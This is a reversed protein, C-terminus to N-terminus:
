TERLRAPTRAQVASSISKQVKTLDDESLTRDDAQLLVRLSVAKEDAAYPAGRYQTVLHVARCLGKAGSSTAAVLEAFPLIEPCIWTFEREVAQFRSPAQFRLPQPDGLTLAIAELDIVFIGVRDAIDAHKRTAADLEGVVGVRQKGLRLDRCRSAQWGPPVVTVPATDGSFGLGTLVALAADRASYFPTEQSQAAWAGTLFQQEDPTAKLGCGQGYGKGLEYCRVVDSHRRNRAIAEALSGTLDRRLVTWEASLPNALRITRDDWGLHTVWDDSAFPYTAVEDWGLASLTTRCRQEAVRLPNAAPVAAPLRPVEGVIGDFGQMRAVEEVLDVGHHIDKRRWWPVQWGANGATFGLKTLRQAQEDAPLDSGFYRRYLGPAYAVVRDEGRLNGAHFSQVVQLDPCCERLMALARNIAAPALEHPLGKEFRSSSDTTLGLRIRTRRIRDPRFLAAELLVSTTDPAVLANAGGMIGALAVAKKGDSIVVDTSNLAHERDDLTRFREGDAAPRVRITTGELQRLDFAHMPEGLEFMVFNTVDVLLGLSRVGVAELATRLWEPSPGNTVGTVVAGCYVACADADSITASWPGATDAFTVDPTPPLPLETILAIERAWGWQGWLDPRNTIGHNDIVLVADGMGLAEALPTGVTHHDPLVLIGDHSVGLGLEDEACIMGHSPEGRLKGAKITIAKKSGDEQPMSLVAGVTAVAVTQGVAVNPAGCVISLPAEAGVDVTCVRLRDANPHQQCTLVKGVVVGTLGPGTVEIDSEVETTRLTLAQQVAEPSLPLREVALLRRIWNLSVRM